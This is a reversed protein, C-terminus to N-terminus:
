IALSIAVLAPVLLVILVCGPRAPKFQGPSEARLQETLTEIFQRSEMLSAGSVEKYLKVARLKKNHFIADLILDQNAGGGLCTPSYPKGKMMAEVAHKSDILSSGTALQYIKVADLKNGAAIAASIERHKEISLQKLIEGKRSQM